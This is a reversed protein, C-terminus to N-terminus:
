SWGPWHTVARRRRRVRVKEADREIEVARARDILDIAQREAASGPVAQGDALLREVHRDHARELRLDLGEGYRAPVIREEPQAPRTAGVVDHRCYPCASMPPLPAPGATAPQWAPHKPCPLRDPTDGIVLDPRTAERWARLEEATKEDRGIIRLGDFYAPTSV